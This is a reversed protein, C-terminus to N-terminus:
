GDISYTRNVDSAAESFSLAADNTIVDDNLTGSDTTLGVTPIALTTDLTFTTSATKVNGAIDTDTVTVTYEGDVTPASYEKTAAAGDISYVRTVDAAVASFTLAEDNTITDSASAGSDNDLTISPMAVTTDLTFTTSATKVNGAIDTDTVTVTYEGDVTPATYETTAAAGDISYTRNVDSAAESFSLAADNTIVDDNLTGSDTTLGVTPIALTTDLTFTTSATKVNGATDTDTVTVTYEGDVTPASYETTAAAGDISYTRNVNSAAESFSLAADNTIVDDNLTGSDTTLGVTPI